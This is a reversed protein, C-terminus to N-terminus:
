IKTTTSFPVRVDLLRAPTLSRYDSENWGASSYPNNHADKYVRLQNSSYGQPDTRVRLIWFM